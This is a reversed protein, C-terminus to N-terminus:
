HSGRGPAPQVASHPTSPAGQWTCRPTRRADRGPVYIRGRGPALRVLVSCRVQWTAM